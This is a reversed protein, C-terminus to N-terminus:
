ALLHAQVFLIIAYLRFDRNAQKVFNHGEDKALLYWVPMERKRMAQVIADADSAPVRPDNKGQIIFLPKKIKQINNLPATREMFARIKPDREDGFEPRQVDRRWGETREIFTALNTMGSDSIAGRIRDGYNVAAALALYGGYSGGYVLVREADLDPQTKIWDLLAGIDKVADERKLGDDLNLFTKGYGTSGRVNPYIRVIGLENIFFNDDYGFVPRYQDVPGGHIDIIVPRKGTFAAPPRYLFGSINRGDFSKWKILEPQPLTEAEVGFVAGKAWRDIKETTINLSYVDNPTRPSKFNFALDASNSHWKLDSVIGVPLSSIPKKEFTDTAILYLRSLGDENTVVALTKGDPALQFEDVDWKIDTTLFKFRKAALDLYALRRFDSDRDTVVYIGKGDQSFQPNDYYEGDKKDSSALLRREDTKVDIMWLKSVTNSIFECYVVQRDDSSWDYAKLYNGTSQVWLRNSKPDPPNVLHLSVGSAGPLSSCYVIREGSNSWVPETSRSKGDTLLASTRKEIDYLYMQFAEKGDTDQNYVLFKAQPQFYLDYVGNAPISLWGRASGGPAELRSVWAVNSIGKLLVERKVPDWGAVPLGFVNAYRKAKQALAAPVKPIGVIELNGNPVIEDSQATANQLATTLLAALMAAFAIITMSRTFCRFAAGM